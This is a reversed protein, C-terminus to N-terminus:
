SPEKARYTHWRPRDIDEYMRELRTLGEDAAYVLAAELLM